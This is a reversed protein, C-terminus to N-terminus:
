LEATLDSQLAQIVQEDTLDQVSTEDASRAPPVTAEAPDDSLVHEMVFHALEGVNPYDIAVTASIETGLAHGLLDSLDLAMISDVGADEFGVADDLVVDPDGVTQTVLDHLTDRLRDDREEAPLEGLLDRLWGSPRGAPTDQPSGAPDPAAAQDPGSDTVLESVLEARPHGRLAVAYATANVEAALMRQKDGTLALSLLVEASEDTLRGIGLRDAAREVEAAAAMGGKAAPVWPGWEISTAPRGAARLSEALGNLFGNAAGYNVQGASGLLGAASSFLVFADLDLTRTAQALNEAGRAKAAFVKEYDAIDLRDFAHDATAGALHFVACLPADQSAAAVAAACEAADTVDGPVVRVATGKETLEDIVQQAAADPASRGMLAIAPAGQQALMRAVSLGLAGLGGTVLVGGRWEPTDPVSPVATLRAIRTGSGNLVLRTEPVEQDLALTLTGVLSEPTWGDDLTIRLLRRESDEAELAALMGWLAERQAASAAGAEGLVVYPVTRAAATLAEALALSARLAVSADSADATDAGAAFRADVVAGAGPTGLDAPTRAVATHGLATLAETVRAGLPTDAGLVAIERGPRGQGDFRPDAILSLEYANPEGGRLSQRLAARRANRVRFGDVVAVSDGNGTFLHLDSTEVRMRGNPLPQTQLAHVHGWLEGGREPRGPFSIATASFPIALSAARHVEDDVMFAAIIQFFSDILGPYLEYDDLSDPVEQETYRVLAEDGKVWVDEIWRFSPGLTYGLERFYTYFTDRDIHRDAAAIFAATDPAAPQRVTGPDVLRGSLHKEWRGAAPDTLSHLTVTPVAASDDVIIQADYHEGDQIILPRPCVWDEIALPRGQGALASLITALHSSAPTLVTEEIRHDNLYLPYEATREFAFVRGHLAPSRLEEGWHRRQRTAPATEVATRAPTVKTWYRTEAFPYGPAEARTGGTASQVQKWVLDQGQEYLAAAATLLSSREANGRQLSSVAGGAPAIGAATVMNILTQDPGLELFFDAGVRHLEQAGEYFRVPQRVHRPWYDTGYEHAAAVKGTLNSVIPVTPPRFEMASVVATLEPVMPDILRSHAASSIVLERAKVDEARAREAVVAVDEPVGAVVVSEPGNVAAVDCTTGAIWGTVRDLPAALSLMSGRGTGQMLRARHAVLTLGTERDMVGAVVAAAIEGVSHGTVVSPTVGWSKWLEALALEIAVTAPQTYQIQDILETDAGYFMLDRLEVGILPLLVRGCDDITARFVPETEYLEQGMGFYQSGAGSFLFAVRPWGTVREPVGTVAGLQELLAAGTEAFLARRVPFHARGVGSTTALAATEAYDAVTAARDQWARAVREFGAADPASLAMLLPGEDPLVPPLDPAPAEGLVVHANTGSFGFSSVGALRQGDRVRWPTLVDVVRMNMDDWPVHPNLTECHLSAPLKGNRLALVTKFIGAIGSASECHGINSKISGIHLPNGSKRGQGLVSWAANLEIPDGLSTGTGHAELYSIDQPAVGADAIAAAIVAEQATGSPVTLGSSAGDQNVASGHIVALVRDGDRRADSLRKLVLVGCGEARVFGNADQSFTKCRGDPSLMHARTVAVSCSPATILNVGGALVQDSEHRRLSQVALHVATLSSSCATDVAMTPGNLGLTYAIRGAAANLATGSVFYADLGELGAGELLRAYDSNTIGVFVGTRTGKLSKPDIGGDELAHWSAALLLRQQPDLSEAERAPVGFFAADFRAIDSLFGGQDSTIKGAKLPDTDHLDASSWRDAPVRGVTDRGDRLLEWLEDVSDAGPFRGAMGVIAVPEQARAEDSPDASVPAPATGTSTPGATVAPRRRATPAPAAAAPDAVREAIYQSLETITPHNFIDAVKIRIGFALSLDRALDVAMISDLGVDFFGTDQPVDSADDHGLTVAIIRAAHGQAVAPRASEPAALVEARAPPVEEDSLGSAPAGAPGAAGDQQPGTGAADDALLADFLPRRRVTSMVETFRQWDMPCAVLLAGPGPATAALTACGEAATMEVIGMRALDRRKDADAMGDLGWSGYAITTAKLGLALRHEALTDIGGNAAAYAGRGENGWLASASSTQVFFDLPWDRSLLHLWWAGTFKGRLGAEFDQPGADALLAEPLTGAGHVIGRVAPMGDLVRCAETLAALSDCDASLYVVEAGATRLEDLAAAAAEGLDASRTRGLLLLHRAGRRVLDAAMARGIGGLGGTILYTADDTVPLVPTFDAPAARLRGALVAGDRVASLDEDSDACVLRWLARADDPLPTAPLDVVAGWSDNFELGIVPALGQLLGHDGAVPRDQGSIQRAGRTVAFARGDPGASHLARVAVTVAACLAGSRTGFDTAGDLSEPLPTAKMALVLATPGTAARANWFSAWAADDAPLTGTEFDTDTSPAVPGLVTGRLGCARAQDRLLELLEPDDGALVVERRGAPEPLALPQWDLDYLVAPGPEPAAQAAPPEQRGAAAPSPATVAEPAHRRRQWPYHPLTTVRRPLEALGAAGRDEAAAETLTVAPSPDGHALATLAAAAADKDTADVRARVTYQARATASYAFAPYDEDALTGLRAAYLGALERLAQQSKASIEFGRVAVPAASDGGTPTGDLDAGAAGVIVHANTGVIGFSSIGVYRGSVDTNWQQETNSFVIGTGDIDIRPNLTQFHVLPPITRRQLCLISKILGAIGSAAELHGINTKVSGVHLPASGGNPRLAAVLADVEIPDGLSTGTGHAEIVGIDDATLGADQLATEILSIQSLVNPATFGSSRGDQNIASGQIVAHIRDGDRRAHDLRKLVIFGCGEGRVYGNARADFTKCLGDPALAGTQSIVRTSGPSVVLNVGGALAVDCEGRRLAQSAQHVSVLSSACAADIAVAPGTFGMTYAIRGAAFSHGNGTTWHADMEGNLWDWYDHRGTIGVYTGVKADALRAPPLAADELAEVAVELLLRHQPDIARAERPSIGFFTADFDLVEDLFSGRRPLTAWEDAFPEMRSAPRERILDTGNHLVEWYSDLDHIGGPFRMGVGIVALPQHGSQEDLQARLSKITELARTLPTTAPKKSSSSTM